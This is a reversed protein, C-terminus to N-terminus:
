KTYLCLNGQNNFNKEDPEGLSSNASAYGMPIALDVTEEKQILDKEGVDQGHKGKADTVISGEASGNKRFEVVQNDKAKIETVPSSSSEKTESLPSSEGSGNRGVELVINKAETDEM